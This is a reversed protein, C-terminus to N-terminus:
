KMKRRVDSLLATAAAGISVWRVRERGGDGLPGVPARKGNRDLRAGKRDM